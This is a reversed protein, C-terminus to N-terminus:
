GNMITSEKLKKVFKESKRNVIKRFLLGIVLSIVMFICLVTIDKFLISYVIGVMIQRMGSIAYTFPLLSFLKQFIAPNVEIPFNGSTGAVQIVLLVVGFIIGANGFVSVATYIMITFVISVFITYFIFMAPHLAYSGLIFLAGMSAIIAQGIGIFLFLLMKGFYIEYSKLEQNEEFSHADTGLIISLMYGGIWLCLVTYFPTCASGYNPWSFLRNDEIQVPSSLFTSQDEWNNTIMDFLEDFKNEEDYERFKDALEHVNDKFEPFKDKLKVLEDTSLNSFETSVSLIEELDPLTSRGTDLVTLTKDSIIRISDFGDKIAPVIESDYSDIVDTVSTHIDELVNRMDKIVQTDLKKGNDLDKIEEDARNKVMDLKENINDLNDITKSIRKSVNKLNDKISTLSKFQKNIESGEQNNSDLTFKSLDIKSVKDSFKKVSKLQSIVDDILTSASKATDSVRILTKKAVEPIINEDLNTLQISTTDIVNESKILDEKITPSIDSLYGQSEDFITQTNKLFEDTIDITNSVNPLIENAKVILDSLSTTGDITNNLLKELQPMNEDLEYVEDITKRYENRNKDLEIGIENCARFLVGSITKVINDDIQGKVNKVGADTIKPAIANKKENVTYILKPKVVKKDVITTANESFDEPIEVTAYYKEYLLGDKATEKDVFTWGMKDNDKLKDVLDNGLNIDQDKFTAGKDENIIAIQIGSTNSYPDWSAKINILSYLSPIVMLAIVVVTAVWNTAINVVDRKFIKIINKM